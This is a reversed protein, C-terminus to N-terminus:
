IKIVGKAIDLLIRKGVPGKRGKKSGKRFSNFYMKTYLTAFIACNYHTFRKGSPRLTINKAGLNEMSKKTVIANRYSVEEDNQCYCFQVPNSPKYNMFSNEQLKKKFLFNPDHIYLNIFTDKIMNKPTDPLIRNIAGIDHKGDFMPAILTDYPARYVYNLDGDIVKYAEQYSKLLYPLYHPQTYKKFMTESQVGAMDYAGSMPSAATVKINPFNEQLIKNAALTAHGGQSYGTLFLLNNTTIGLKPKLEDVALLMDATAYGESELHQYLHTKEGLGLGIYDPFVVTYGDIAFGISLQEEGGLNEHGHPITRTGHHFVVTPLNNKLGQPVFYLGSAKIPSGDHWHTWYMIEYVEVNYKPNIISKPIHKEKLTKKLDEKLVTHILKYSILHNNQAITTAMLLSFFALFLNKM